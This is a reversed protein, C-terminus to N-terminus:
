HEDREAEELENLLEAAEEDSLSERGQSISM